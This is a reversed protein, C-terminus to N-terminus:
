PSKTNDIIQALIGKIDNQVVENRFRLIRVGFEKLRETRMEDNEKQIDNDHVAGDVEIVLKKEACYFDLIYNEFPHQRRFKLGNLKRGRLEQWLSKEAKTMGRKLERAQEFRKPLAGKFLAEYSDMEEKM